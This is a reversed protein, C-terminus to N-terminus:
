GFALIAAGLLGPDPLDSVVIEVSGWALTMARARVTERFPKLYLEGINTLSGSLIVREPNFTNLLGAVAVGLLAGAQEVLQRAVANGKQAADALAQPTIQDEPMGELKITGSKLLEKALRALGSGSAYLEICGRNGCSCQPGDYHISIHGLEAAANRAGRLIKNEVVVGGGIGTGLVLAIFNSIARGKGFMQEALAACNGDNDVCVPLQLTSQLIDRLPVHQWEPLLATSDVIEGKELDVRGGTSVGVGLVHWVNRGAEDKLESLLSIMQDLAEKKTRPTRVSKRHHLAGERHVIAARLNTGGLDVALAVKTSTTTKM